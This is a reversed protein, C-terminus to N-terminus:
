FLTNFTFENIVEMALATAPTPNREMIEQATLWYFPEGTELNFLPVNGEWKSFIWCRLPSKNRHLTVMPESSILELGGILTIGAEEFAERRVAEEPTENPEVKGGPFLYRGKYDAPQDRLEVLFKDDPSILVFSVVQM